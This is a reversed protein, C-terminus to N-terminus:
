AFSPCGKKSIFQTRNNTFIAGNEQIEAFSPYEKMCNAHLSPENKQYARETHHGFMGDTFSTEM